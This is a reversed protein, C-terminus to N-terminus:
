QGSVAARGPRGHERLTLPGRQPRASAPVAEGGDLYISTVPFKEWLKWYSQWLYKAKSYQTVFELSLLSTVDISLFSCSANPKYKRVFAADVWHSLGKVLPQETLPGAGLHGVLLFFIM